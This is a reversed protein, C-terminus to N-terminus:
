VTYVIGARVGDSSEEAAHAVSLGLDALPAFYADLIPRVILDTTSASPDMHDVAMDFAAIGGAPVPKAFVLECSSGTYILCGGQNRPAFTDADVERSGALLCAGSLGST